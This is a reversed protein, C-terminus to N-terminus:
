DEKYDTIDFYDGINYKNFIQEDVTYEARQIDDSLVEKEYITIIYRAPHYKTLPVMVNNVNVFSTTTYSPRYEMNEIYGETIKDQCGTLLLLLIILPLLRKFVNKKM